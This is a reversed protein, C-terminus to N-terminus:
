GCLVGQEPVSTAHGADLNCCPHFQGELRWRYEGDLGHVRECAIELAPIGDFGQRLEQVRAGYRRGAVRELETSTHWERDRLLERLAARKSGRKQLTELEAVLLARPTPQTTM